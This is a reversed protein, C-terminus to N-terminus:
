PISLKQKALHSKSTIINEKAQFVVPYSLACTGMINSDGFVHIDAHNINEEPLPM